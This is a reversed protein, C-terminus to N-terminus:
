AAAANHGCWDRHWGAVEVATLPESVLYGQALDVGLGEMVRWVAADAVGEATVSMDAARAEGILYRIFDASSPDSLADEVLAKDLKLATFGLGLLARHGHMERSIDDIAIAYGLARLRVAARALEAPDALPDSETLEITVRAAPIGAGARLMELRSLAADSSLVDAPFNFALGVNLGAIHEASWDAFARALVVETLRRSLGATEVSPIFRSPPLVGLLPHHLRALVELAVPRSDALRVIPQYLAQVRGEALASEVEGTRLPPPMEDAAELGLMAELAIAPKAVEPRGVASLSGCITMPEADELWV